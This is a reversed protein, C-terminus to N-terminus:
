GRGSEVKRARQTHTHTHTHLEKTQPTVASKMPAALPQAAAYQEAPAAGHGSLVAPPVSRLLGAVAAASAAAQAQRYQQQPQQQQSSAASSVSPQPAAYVVPQGYGHPYAAASYAPAPHYGAAQAYRAYLAAPYAGAPAGSPPCASQCAAVSHSAALGGGGAGAGNRGGARGAGNNGLTPLSAVRQLQLAARGDLQALHAQQREYTAAEQQRQVLEAHEIARRSAMSAASEGSM